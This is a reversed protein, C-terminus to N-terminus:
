YQQSISISVLFLATLKPGAYKDRVQFITQSKVMTSAPYWIPRPLDRNVEVSTLTTFDGFKDTHNVSEKQTPWKSNTAETIGM